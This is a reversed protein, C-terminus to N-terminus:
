GWNLPISLSTDRAKGGGLTFPFSSLKEMSIGIPDSPVKKGWQNLSPMGLITGFSHIPMKNCDYKNAERKTSASKTDILNSEKKV